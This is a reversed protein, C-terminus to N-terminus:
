ETQLTASHHVDFGESTLKQPDHGEQWTIALLAFIKEVYKEKLGIGNDELAISCKHTDDPLGYVKVVSPSRCIV